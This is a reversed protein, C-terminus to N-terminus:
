KYLISYTCYFKGQGLYIKWAFNPGPGPNEFFDELGVVRRMFILHNNGLWSVYCVVYDALARWYTLNNKM